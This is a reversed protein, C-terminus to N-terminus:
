LCYIQLCYVTACFTFKYMVDPIHGLTHLQRPKQPHTKEKTVRFDCRFFRWSCLTFHGHKVEASVCFWPM